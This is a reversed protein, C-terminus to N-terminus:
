STAAWKRSKVNNQSLIEQALAVKDARSEMLTSQPRVLLSATTLSQCDSEDQQDVVLVDIVDQYFSAIGANGHAYGMAKMMQEAPGKVTAGSFFPSVAVIPALTDKLAQKINVINIIPAISVMPNSPAIVVLDAEDIAKLAEITAKAQTLGNVKINEIDNQCRNKVFYDQFNLWVGNSQVQTQIVDDTPLLIPVKVGLQKAISQAIDSASVGKRKLESRYIHTAFDKDGLSMWTDVGLQKLSSLTHQSDNERGWGQNKDIVNALTYTLTDIDPSVWLGHFEQDDAVNGIIKLGSRFESHYFGEALKTGGVGGCILTVKPCTNSM